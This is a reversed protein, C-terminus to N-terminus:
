SLISAILEERHIDPQAQRISEVYGIADPFVELVSVVEDEFLEDDNTFKLVMLYKLRASFNEPSREILEQMSSVAEPILGREVYLGALQIQISPHLDFTARASLLIDQAQALADGSVVRGKAHYLRALALYAELRKTQKVSQLLAVEHLDFLEGVLGEQEAQTEESMGWVSNAFQSAAMVRINHVGSPSVFVATETLEVFRDSLPLEALHVTASNAKMPQVVFFFIALPLALTSITTITFLTNRHLPNNSKVSSGPCIRQIAAITVVFFLLTVVNDFAFLNVFFYMALLVLLAAFVPTKVYGISRVLVRLAVVFLLLYAIVGIAGTEVLINLLQNHANDFWLENDCTPTGFCPNFHMAIASPFNSWGSGLFPHDAVSRVGVDWLAFRAGGTADLFRHQVVSGSTFLLAGVVVFGGLLCALIGVGFLRKIKVKSLLLTVSTYFACGGIFAIKASNAETMFLTVSLVFFAVWGFRRLWIGSSITVLLFAFVIQFLLYTGFFTSNGITSGSNSAELFVQVGVLSALHIACLVLGVSVSVFFFRSWDQTNRVNEVLVFFFLLLHSWLLLGTHRDITSWFSLSFSTGLLGSIFFVSIMLAFVIVLSHIKFFTRTICMKWVTLVFAVEILFLLVYAKTSVYPYLFASSYVLPTFLTAYVFWQIVRNLTQM